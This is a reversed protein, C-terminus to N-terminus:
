IKIEWISLIECAIDAPLANTGMAARAALGSEGFIDQFLESAGNIVKPSDTYDDTCKVVGQIQVCQVVKDLNGGCAKKLQALINIGTTRAAYYGQETTLNDGVRGLGPHEPSHIPGQGAIYVLNGSIRFPTYAAMPGPAAPLTIGLEKLRREIKGGGNARAIGMSSALFSSALFSSSLISGMGIASFFSRRKM